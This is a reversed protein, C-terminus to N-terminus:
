IRRLIESVVAELPQDVSVTLAVEPEELIAFQSELLSAPMFHDTRRALRGLICQKSGQLHIFRLEPLGAALRDRYVQKLASCALFTTKPSHVRAKLEANLAVLWAMRDEDQLPIGGAMKEKNAISHFDDADLFYGGSSDALLKSVATKGCGSVGMVVFQPM